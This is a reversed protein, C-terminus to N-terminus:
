EIANLKNFGQWYRSYLWGHKIAPLSQLEEGHGSVIARAIRWALCGDIFIEAPGPGDDATVPLFEM